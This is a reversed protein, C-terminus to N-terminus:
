MEKRNNVRNNNIKNQRDLFEERPKNSIKSFPKGNTKPQHNVNRVNRPRGCM